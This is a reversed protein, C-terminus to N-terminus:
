KEPVVKSSRFIQHGQVVTLEQALRPLNKTSVTESSRKLKMCSKSQLKASAVCNEWTGRIFSQELMWSLSAHVLSWAIALIIFTGIDAPTSNINKTESTDSTEESNNTANRESVYSENCALFIMPVIILVLVVFLNYVWTLKSSLYKAKWLLLSGALAVLCFAIIWLSIRFRDYGILSLMSLIGAVYGPLIARLLFPRARRQILVIILPDTSFLGSYDVGQMLVSNPGLRWDSALEAGMQFSPESMLTAAVGPLFFDWLGNTLGKLSAVFRINSCASNRIVELRACRRNLPSWGKNLCKQRLEVDQFSISAHICSITPYYVLSKVGWPHEREADHFLKADKGIPLNLKAKPTTERIHFVYANEMQEYQQASFNHRIEHLTTELTSESVAQTQGRNSHFEWVLDLEGDLEILGDAVHTVCTAVRLFCQCNINSEM